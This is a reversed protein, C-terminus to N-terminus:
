ISLELWSINVKQPCLIALFVPGTIVLDRIKDDSPTLLEVDADGEVSGKRAL